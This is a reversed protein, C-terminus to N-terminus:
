EGWGRAKIIYLLAYYPNMLSFGSGFGTPNVGISHTHDASVGGTNFSYGHSHDRDNAPPSVFDFSIAGSWSQTAIQPANYGVASTRRRLYGGDGDLHLHGTSEGGTNGSGSHFHNASAGGSFATHSHAPLQLNTLTMSENGGTADLAYTGGSGVVVRNTMQPVTLGPRIAALSPYTTGSFAAGNCLLYDQPVTAGAFAIVAGVPLADRPTCIPRDDVIASPATGATPITFTAIPMASPPVAPTAPTAGPVGVVFQLQWRPTGSGTYQPDIIRAVLRDKRPNSGNAPQLTLNTVTSATVFYSGQGTTETGAVYAHGPQVSIGMGGTSTVKFGNKSLIGQDCDVTAFMQRLDESSYCGGAIWLPPNREAM